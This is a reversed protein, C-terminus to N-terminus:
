TIIMIMIMIMIIRKRIYEGLSRLKELLRIPENDLFQANNARYPTLLAHNLCFSTAPTFKDKSIDILDVKLPKRICINLGLTTSIM